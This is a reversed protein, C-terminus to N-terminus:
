PPARPRRGNENEIPQKEKLPTKHNLVECIRGVLDLRVEVGLEPEALQAALELLHARESDNVPPDANKEKEQPIVELRKEVVEMAAYYDEAVTRNHVRAYIMTSNLRKHGLFKQISTVPCGANVLQTACTHRLRHPHAKVGVRRGAAKVRSRVLDKSLPENRYLFLHNTRGMGRVDLYARVAKVATGTLYVTRDRLGKGKRVMLRRNPLDLDGLELEEVEGLRLGGHWLLYFAARDLLADREQSPTGTRATRAEFEDRLLRVQEDTLFKPLSDPQKLSPVRFLAQPVVFDQEELFRLFACFCRLDSNIGSVAYGASLRHDVYDMIHIRKLDQFERVGRETVLWRWMRAHGSWFRRIQADMRAPRWNREMLHQYRTLQEILWVPLGAQQRSLDPPGPLTEPLGREQRLFRRFKDLAVRCMDIWEDSTGKAVVYDLARTLDGDLNIESHPKLNLGLANGAMPIYLFHTQKPSAGGTLLWGRYRELLAVNEPPWAATPHPLPYGPPLRSDRSRRRVADYREAASTFREYANM